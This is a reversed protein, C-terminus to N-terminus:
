RPCCCLTLRRGGWCYLSAVLQKAYLVDRGKSYKYFLADAVSFQRITCDSLRVMPTCLGEWIDPFTYLDRDTLLFKGLPLLEALPVEGLLQRVRRQHAKSPTGMLLVVLMEKYRVEFDRGEEEM